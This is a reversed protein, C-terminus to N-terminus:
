AWKARMSELRLGKSLQDLERHEGKVDTLREDPRSFKSRITLTIAHTGKAVYSWADASLSPTQISDEQQTTGHRSFSTVTAFIFGYKYLTVYEYKRRVFSLIYYMHKPHPLADVDVL